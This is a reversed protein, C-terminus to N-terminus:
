FLHNLNNDKWMLKEPERVGFIEGEMIQYRNKWNRKMSIFRVVPGVLITDPFGHLQEAEKVTTAWSSVLTVEVNEGDPTSYVSTGFERAAEASYFGYLQASYNLLMFEYGIEELQQVDLIVGEPARKKLKFCLLNDGPQPDVNIRNVPVTTNLLTSLLEATSEHGIASIFQMKQAEELTVPSVKWTGHCGSPIVSSNLLYNTM